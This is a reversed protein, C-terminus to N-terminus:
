SAGGQSLTRSENILKQRYKGVLQVTERLISEPKEIDAVDITGRSTRQAENLAYSMLEQLGLYFAEDDLSQETGFVIWPADLLHGLLHRKLMAEFEKIFGSGLHEWWGLHEAHTLLTAVLNVNRIDVRSTCTLIDTRQNIFPLEIVHPEITPPRSPIDWYDFKKDLAGQGDYIAIRKGRSLEAGHKWKSFTTHLDDLGYARLVDSGLYFAISYIAANRPELRNPSCVQIQVRSNNFLPEGTAHEICEILRIAAEASGVPPLVICYYSEMHRYPRLQGGHHEGGLAEVLRAVGPMDDLIHLKLGVSLLGHEVARHRQRLRKVVEPSTPELIDLLLEFGFASHEVKQGKREKRLKAERFVLFFVLAAVFVFVHAFKVLNAEM